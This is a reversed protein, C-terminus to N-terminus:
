TPKKLPVLCRIHINQLTSSRKSSNKTAFPMVKTEEEIRKIGARVTELRDSENIIIYNAKLTDIYEGPNGIIVQGNSLFRHCWTTNGSKVDAVTFEIPVDGFLLPGM